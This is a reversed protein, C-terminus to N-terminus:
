IPIAPNPMKLPRAFIVHEHLAPAFGIAKYRAASARLHGESGLVVDLAPPLDIQTDVVAKLVAIEEATDWTDPDLWLTVVPRQADGSLHACGIERGYISCRWARGHTPLTWPLLETQLLPKIWADGADIEADLWQAIAQSAAEGRVEYLMVDHSHAPIVTKVDRRMFQPRYRRFGCSLACRTAPTNASPIVMWLWKIQRTMARAVADQLLARALGKRRLDPAVALALIRATDNIRRILSLGAPEVNYLCVFASGALPLTTATLLRGLPLWMWRGVGRDLQSLDDANLCTLVRWLENFRAPAVQAGITKPQKSM